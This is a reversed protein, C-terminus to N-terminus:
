SLLIGSAVVGATETRLIPLNMYVVEFNNKLALEIEDESFGGEPGIALLINVGKKLSSKIEKIDVSNSVERSHLILKRDFDELLLDKFSIPHLIEPIQARESQRAAEMAIKEWRVLKKEHFNKLKVISYKSEFPLFSDVGVETNMRIIDDMKHGKPLSQALTLSISDQKAEKLDKEEVINGKVESKSIDSIEGVYLKGKNNNLEIKSAIELRLVKRIKAVADKDTIVFRNGLISEDTVFFRSIASM